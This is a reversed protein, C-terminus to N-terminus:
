KTQNMKKLLAKVREVILNRKYPMKFADKVGYKFAKAVLKQEGDIAIIKLEPFQDKVKKIIKVDSQKNFQIEFLILDVKTTKLITEVNDNTSNTLVDATSGLQRELEEDGAITAGSVLICKKM